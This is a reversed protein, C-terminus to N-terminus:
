KVIPTVVNFAPITTDRWGTDASATSKVRKQKPTGAPEKSPKSDEEYVEILDNISCDLVTMLGELLEMNLRQPKGSVLRGLQQSSIEVGHESLLRKLEVVKRIRKKSMAILLKWEVRKQPYRDTM